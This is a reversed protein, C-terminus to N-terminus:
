SLAEAKLRLGGGPRTTITMVPKPAPGALTFRWHSILTALILKAEMMAFSMGICIRPGAGFPLYQFRHRARAAEPAFREPSFREPAEWYMQHRHLAYVPLMIIDGPLVPRGCLRDEALAIRALFGAPPYLRMAEELVQGTFSLAPLHDGEAVGAGFAGRAEERVREQASQDLSLLALSWSLALATTEHGALIFALMNDRLEEATMSRGSEPDAAARMLDMLDGRPPETERAAIVRSMLPRLDSSRPRFIVGPRPIWTPVGIIDFLSVRGASEIYAAIARSVAERDMAERGSLAVDCIVDFTAAVMQEQGEVEGNSAMEEGIRRSARAAAESMVPALGLLHRHAFVPAAARRQWRWHAGEAIFLSEGIAPRLLRKVVPSKPYDNVKDKLIRELAQPQTVMHWRNFLRGSIMPQRYSLAPIIELVNRRARRLTEMVPLPGSPADVGPPIIPETM